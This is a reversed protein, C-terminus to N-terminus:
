SKDIQHDSSRPVDESRNIEHDTSRTAARATRYSSAFIALMEKAEGMLPDLRHTPLLEAESLMELWFLTEDAEEVVIGMKSVFDARSRARATARYNAAVSTGSRLIQKSIVWAEPNNPLSRTMRMIRLAFQKSRRELTEREKFMLRM